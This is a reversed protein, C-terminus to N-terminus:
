PKNLLVEHVLKDLNMYSSGGGASIAEEAKKKWEVAKNKMKMGKEGDIVESVVKELGDRNVSADIELGVGWEICAFRCNIHQDAFFPWCIMPVGSALSEIMSNWGCHTLFAGISPHNLVREQPCWRAIFSREKTEEVFEPPLTINRDGVIADSRIIWLFNKKSNALGWAFELLQQATLVTISGFNVYVVSNPPKSRLWQLCEFDEEWLNAGISILSNEPLQNILSQLPGVAYLPPCSMTSLADLVNGELEDFTNFIIASSESALEAQEMVFNLMLDDTNTLRTFVSFDKLRVNKMTPIWDLTTDFHGNTLYTPDKLPIIGKQILAPLYKNGLFSVASSTRFSVCPVGIEKAAAIAFSMFADPIICSVPPPFETSNVYGNLKLLLTQFPALFNKRISDFLSPIDQTADAADEDSSLLGDPITEFHFDLFGDLSNPGRSKLIRKHNFETNVFTIHFGKSHLLIALKLMPNIHGQSPFPLCVVHPKCIQDTESLSHM